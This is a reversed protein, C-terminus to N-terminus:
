NNNTEPSKKRWDGRWSTFHQRIDSSQSPWDLVKWKKERIFHQCHTKPWQRAAHHLEELNTQVSQVNRRLNDLCLTKTSKQIWAAAVGDHTVDVIFILSGVGSAAMCACAMVSGGGHKGSSSTYNPYQASGKGREGCKTREMVKTLILMPRMLGYAKNWFKHPEDRYKNAFQLRM